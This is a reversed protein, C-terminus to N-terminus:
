TKKNKEHRIQLYLIKFDVFITNDNVKEPMREEFVYSWDIIANKFVNV